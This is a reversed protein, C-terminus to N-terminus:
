IKFQDIQNGIRYISGNVSTAINMLSDDDDNTKRITTDMDGIVEKVSRSSEQLSEINGSIQERAKNVKGAADSVSTTTDNMNQLEGDIQKSGSLQEEIADKIKDVLEGTQNIQNQVGMFVKDTTAASEVVQMISSLIASLQKGISASQESSNESLKRIEDAVVAFGKGAEGAHAAEIAANMALLNTQEAIDSIVINAENLMNSQQEITQIQGSVEHQSTIGSRVNDQLTNFENSMAEISNSVQEISQIMASVSKSSTTISEGQSTLLENLSQVADNIGNSANVADDIQMNQNMIEGNVRHINNVMGEVFNTNKQVMSGLRDGYIRLDDKTDILESILMQMREMFNNFSTALKGIEDLTKVPVRRSLDADGSAVVEIEKAIDAVPKVCHDIVIYGVVFSIALAVVAIFIMANLLISIGGYFDNYPALCVASWNSQSIPAYAISYKKKEVENYFVQAGSGGAMISQVIPKLGAPADGALTDGKSVKDVSQHATYKGSLRSIVFPHEAKGVTISAVIKCLDSSDVVASIEAIQRGSDNKVPVAYYSCLHGNVKSFDPDQLARQGQMSNALYYRDHLDSWKGTTPYGAGNENFFGVGLYRPNSKVVHNAAEWKDHMDVDADQINPMGAIAELMKFESENITQIKAAVAEVLNVNEADVASILEGKSKNYAFVIIISFSLVLVALLAINIKWKLGIVIKM